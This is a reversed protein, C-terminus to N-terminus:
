VTRNASAFQSAVNGGLQRLGDVLVTTATQGDVDFDGWVGIKEGAHIAIELRDAAKELDPLDAPPAPHYQTPDFFANAQDLHTIGRRVLAEALLPVTGFAKQLDPPLNVPEPEIWHQPSGIL